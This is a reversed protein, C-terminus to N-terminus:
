CLSKLYTKENFFLRASKISMIQISKFFSMLELSPHKKQSLSTVCPWLCSVWAVTSVQAIARHVLLRGLAAWSCSSSGGGKASASCCSSCEPPLRVSNRGRSSFTPSQGCGAWPTFAPTYMKEVKQRVSRQVRNERLLQASCEPYAVDGHEVRGKTLSIIFLYISESTIETVVTYAQPM